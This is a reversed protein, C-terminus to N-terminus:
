KLGKYFCLWMAAIEADGLFNSNDFNVRAAAVRALEHGSTSMIGGKAVTALTTGMSNKVANGEIRLLEGGKDDCVRGGEIRGVVTGDKREIIGQNIRYGM